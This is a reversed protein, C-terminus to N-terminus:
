AVRDGEGFEEAMLDEIRAHVRRLHAKKAGQVRVVLFSEDKTHGSHQEWSSDMPGLAARLAHVIQRVTM